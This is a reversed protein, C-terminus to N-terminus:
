ILIKHEKLIRITNEKVSIDAFNKLGLISMENIPDGFAVEIDENMLETFIKDFEAYGEDNVSLFTSNEKLYPEILDNKKQDIKDKIEIFKSKINSIRVALAYQFRNLGLDSLSDVIFSLHYNKM